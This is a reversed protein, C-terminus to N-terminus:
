TSSCLSRGIRAIRRRCPFADGLRGPPQVRHASRLAAAGSPSRLQGAPQRVDHWVHHFQTCVLPIDTTLEEAEMGERRDSGHVWGFFKKSQSVDFAKACLDWFQQTMLQAAIEVWTYIAVAVGRALLPLALSAVALAALGAGIVAPGLAYVVGARAQRRALRALQQNAWTLAYATTLSLGLTLAAVSSARYSRLFITDRSINGLVSVCCQATFLACFFGVRRLVQLEAMARLDFQRV